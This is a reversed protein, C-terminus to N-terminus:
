ECKIEWIRNCIEKFVPGCDLSGGVGDEKFVVVTYIEGECEMFGAFWSHLIEEGKEDLWGTEATSTKGGAVGRAPKASVCTGENFNNILMNKAKESEDKSLARYKYRGDPLIKETGDSLVTGLVLKPSIYEGGNVATSYCSAIQLPSALLGGQGFSINALMGDNLIEESSPVNGSSSFFGDALSFAKGFGLNEATRLIREGGVRLALRIFYTNCSYAFAKELTMEGHAVSNSCSFMNKGIEVKGTCFSTFDECGAEIASLAVVLKFVSGVSYANVARNLLPSNKDSLSKAVDNQNFVPLSVMAKIEGTKANLVVAAGKEIGYLLMANETIRQIEYDVTLKVGKKSYYNDTVFDSEGGALIKNYATTNYRFSLTRNDECLIKDFSKEIGYVGENDVSNVYGVVHCCFGDDTYRQFIQSTKIFANSGDYDCDTVFPESKGVSGLLSLYDEESLYDKLIEASEECPMAIVTNETKRNVLGKMNCDYIEGRLRSLVISRSSNSVDPFKETNAVLWMMRVPLSVFLLILIILVCLSRKM